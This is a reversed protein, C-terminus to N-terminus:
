QVLVIASGSSASGANPDAPGKYYTSGALSKDHHLGVTGSLNIGAFVGRGYINTNGSLNLPSNPAYIDAYLDGKPNLNVGGSGTMIITLQSASLGSTSGNVTVSGNLGFNDRTYITVNQGASIQLNLTGNINCNPIWYTGAPLNTTDKNNNNLNGGSPTTGSIKANDNKSSVTGASATAYDSSFNRTVKTKSGAISNSGNMSIGGGSGYEINGNISNNGNINYWSNCAVTTTTISGSSYKGGTYGDITINGSMNYWGLGVWGYPSATSTTPTGGTLSAISTASLTFSSKGVASAFVLPVTKTLKVKVANVPTKTTSFSGNAWNGLTVSTTAKSATTGDVMNDAIVAQAKSTATSDSIGTVAYRAAADAANQLGSKASQVRGFDVAFSVFGMLAILMILTFLATIARPRRLSM